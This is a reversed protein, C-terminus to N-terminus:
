DVLTFVIHHALLRKVKENLDNVLQTEKRPVATRALMFVIKVIFENEAPQSVMAKYGGLSLTGLMPYSLVNELRVRSPFVLKIEWSETYRYGLDLDFVTATDVPLLEGLLVLQSLPIFYMKDRIPYIPSNGIQKIIISRCTDVNSPQNIWEISDPIVGSRGYVYAVLASSDMEEEIGESDNFNPHGAIFYMAQGSFSWESSNRCSDLGPMVDLTTKVILKNSAPPSTRTLGISYKVGDTSYENIKLAVYGSNELYYPLKDVEYAASGLSPYLYHWEINSKRVM